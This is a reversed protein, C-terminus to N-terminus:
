TNDSKTARDRTTQKLIRPSDVGSRFLRVSNVRINEGNSLTGSLRVRSLKAPAFRDTQLGRWPGHRRDALVTWTSGDESGEVVYHAFPWPKRFWATDSFDIFEPLEYRIARVTAPVPLAFEAGDGVARLAQGDEPLPEADLFYHVTRAYLSRFITNAPDDLIGTFNEGSIVALRLNKHVSLGPRHFPPQKVRDLFNEAPETTAEVSRALIDWAAPEYIMDAEGAWRGPVQDGLKLGLGRVIPHDVNSVVARGSDPWHAVSVHFINLYDVAGGADPHAIPADAPADPGLLQPPRFDESSYTLHMWVHERQWIYRPEELSPLYEVMVAFSDGGHVMVAGGRALYNRFSMFCPLTTFEAHNGLLVLRYDDLRVRGGAIDAQTCYDITFGDQWALERLYRYHKIDSWREYLGYYYHNSRRFRTNLVTPSYGVSDYHWSERWSTMAHGGNSAYARWMDTPAVFLVQRSCQAPRVILNMMKQSLRRATGDVKEGAPTVVARYLGTPWQGVKVTLHTVPLQYTFRCEAVVEGSVDDILTWVMARDGESPSPVIQITQLEGPEWSIQLPSLVPFLARHTGPERQEEDLYWEAWWLRQDAPRWTFIAVEMDPSGTETWIHLQTPSTPGTRAGWRSAAPTAGRLRTGIALNGERNYFLTGWNLYHAPPITIGDPLYLPHGELADADLTMSENYEMPFGWVLKLEEAALFSGPAPRIRCFDFAGERSYNAQLTVESDPASLTAVGKRGPTIVAARNGLLVSLDPMGPSDFLLVRPDGPPQHEGAAGSGIGSVLIASSGLFERRNM